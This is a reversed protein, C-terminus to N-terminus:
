HRERGFRSVVIGLNQNPQTEMITKAEGSDNESSSLRRESDCTLSKGAAVMFAHPDNQGKSMERLSAAVLEEVPIQLRNNVLISLFDFSQSFQKIEETAAFMSLRTFIRRNPRCINIFKGM